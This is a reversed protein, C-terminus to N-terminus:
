STPITVARASSSSMPSAPPPITAGTPAYNKPHRETNVVCDQGPFLAWGANGSDCLSNQYGWAARFFVTNKSNFIHDIKVTNDQQRESNPAAWSFFATNLGDGGTFNNPLPILDLQGKVKPDIGIRQPDKAPINYTAISLGPLPNGATDVSAGTTGAPRNRGGAVYRWNGKRAESTYVLRDQSRTEGAALRQINVFFFTKNHIIPGGLSGGYINQVFKAKGIGTLNNAWENANLRPTRYFWFANGHFENTGSKTILQVNAGSNRGTEATPNSTIVRYEAISDPNARTPSFNSGGASTDNNDIGDLTFNWARDRAGNV